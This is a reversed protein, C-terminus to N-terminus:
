LHCAMGTSTLKNVRHSLRRKEDQAKDLLCELEQRDALESNLQAKLCECESLM